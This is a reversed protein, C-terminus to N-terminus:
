PPTVSWAKLNRFFVDDTDFAVFGIFAGNADPAPSIARFNRSGMYTANFYVDIFGAPSAVVRLTQWADLAFPASISAGVQGSVTGSLEITLVGTAAPNRNNWDLRVSMGNGGSGDWAWLLGAVSVAVNRSTSAVFIEAEITMVAQPVITSYRLRGFSAGSTTAEITSATVGWTGTDTTFNAVSAGSENVQLTWGGGGGSSANITREGPTTDDFTINTGALMQRSNPYDTTEDAETLFSAGTVEVPMSGFPAEGFSLADATRRLVTDNAAATIDAVEGATNADRGLISVGSSERLQLGRIGHDAIGVTIEGGAGDDDISVVGNQGALVRENALFPSAEAVIYNQDKLQQIDDSSSITAPVDSNGDVEIGPGPIVNRADALSLVDRVFSAFWAADWREPIRLPIHQLGKGPM